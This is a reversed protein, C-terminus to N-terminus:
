RKSTIDGAAIGKIIRTIKPAGSYSINGKSTSKAVIRDYVDLDVEANQSASIEASMVVLDSNLFKSRTIDLDLYRVEGELEVVCDSTAEIRMDDVDVKATFKSKSRLELDVIDDTIESEFTVTAASSKLSSLENYMITLHTSDTRHKDIKEKIILVGKGNVEVTLEGKTESEQRVGTESNSDVKVLDVKLAGNIEIQDFNKGSASEINQAKITTTAFLAALTVLIYKM